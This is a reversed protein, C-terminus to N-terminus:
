NELLELIPNVMIRTKNDKRIKDKFRRTAQSVASYDMKSFISHTRIVKIFPSFTYFRHPFVKKFAKYFLAKRRCRFYAM